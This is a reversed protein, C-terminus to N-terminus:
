RFLLSLVMSVFCSSCSIPSMPPSTLSVLCFIFLEFRRKMLSTFAFIKQVPVFFKVPLSYSFISCSVLKRIKFLFISTLSFFCPNSPSLKSFLSHQSCLLPRNVDESYYISSRGFLLRHFPLRAIMSVLIVFCASAHMFM